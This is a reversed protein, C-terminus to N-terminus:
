KNNENDILSKYEHCGHRIQESETQSEKLPSHFM